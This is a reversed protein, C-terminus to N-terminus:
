WCGGDNAPFGVVIGNVGEFLWGLGAVFGMPLVWFCGCFWALVVM